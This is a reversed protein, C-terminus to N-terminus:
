GGPKRALYCVHWTALDKLVGPLHATNVPSLRTYVDLIELGAAAVLGRVQDIRLAHLGWTGFWTAYSRIETKHLANYIRLSLGEGLLHYPKFAHGGVLALSYFPPFSLFLHGGPRLVRRAEALMKEPEALHEILSSCYVLDFSCDKFPFTKLADVQAFPITMERYVSDAHLDTAVFQKAREQLIGSYGGFGSGLELVRCEEARVGRRALESLTGEAIYSQMSRYHDLSKSRRLGLKFLELM